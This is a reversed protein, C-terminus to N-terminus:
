QFDFRIKQKVWVKVAEGKYLAPKFKWSKVGQTASEEFLGQPDSELVKVKEVNGEKDILLNLLVYGKIGMKKAQKPYEIASRQSAVPAEDVSEESMVVNKDVDGLLSDGGTLDQSMFSELGTDIGSLSSSLTPAPTARQQKQPEPKPKPKPKPKPEQKVVKQVNLESSEKTSKPAIIMSDSNMVIVSSFVFFLGFLMWLAAKLHNQLTKM